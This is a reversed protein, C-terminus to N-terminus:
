GIVNSPPQRMLLSPQLPTFWLLRLPSALSERLHRGYAGGRDPRAAQRRLQDTLSDHSGSVMSADLLGDCTRQVTPWLGPSLAALQAGLAHFEAILQEAREAQASQRLLQKVPGSAAAARRRRLKPVGASSEMVVPPATARLGV